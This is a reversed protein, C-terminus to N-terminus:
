AAAASRNRKSRAGIVLVAGAGALAVGTVVLPMVDTGTRAVQAGAVRQATTPAVSPPSQAEAVGPLIFVLALFALAILRRVRM